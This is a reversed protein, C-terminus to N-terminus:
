KKKNQQCMMWPTQKQPHNRENNNENNTFAYAFIYLSLDLPAPMTDVSSSMCGVIASCMANAMPLIDSKTHM